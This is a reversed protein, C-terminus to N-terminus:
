WLKEIIFCNRRADSTHACHQNIAIKDNKKLDMVECIPGACYQGGYQEAVMNGNKLIKMHHNGGSGCSDMWSMRVTIKYMGDMGIVISTDNDATSVMGDLTPALEEKNWTSNIFLSQHDHYKKEM